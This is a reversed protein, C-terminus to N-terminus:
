RSIISGEPIAQNTVERRLEKTTHIMNHSTMSECTLHCFFDDGKRELSQIIHETWIIFSVESNSHCFGALIMNDVYRGFFHFM